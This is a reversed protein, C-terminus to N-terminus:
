QRHDLDAWETRISRDLVRIGLDLDLLYDLPQPIRRRSYDLDVRRAIRELTHLPRRDAHLDMGRHAITELISMEATGDVIIGDLDRDLTDEGHIPNPSIALTEPTANLDDLPLHVAELDMLDPDLAIHGPLHVDVEEVSAPNSPSNPTLESPEYPIFLLHLDLSVDPGRPRGEDRDRDDERRAGYGRPGERGHPRNSM